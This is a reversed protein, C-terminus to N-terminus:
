LASKQIPTLHNTLVGVVTFSAPVCAVAFSTGVSAIPNHNTSVGVMTLMVPEYLFKMILSLRSM